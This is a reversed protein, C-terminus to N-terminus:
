MSVLKGAHVLLRVARALSSSCLIGLGICARCGAHVSTTLLGRTLGDSGYPPGSCGSIWAAGSRTSGEPSAKPSSGGADGRLGPLGALGVGPQIGRIGWTGGSEWGDAPHLVTRLGTEPLYCLIQARRLALWTTPVFVQAWPEDFAVLLPPRGSPRGGDHLRSALRHLRVSRPGWM